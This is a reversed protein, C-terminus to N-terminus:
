IISRNACLGAASEAADVGPFGPRWRLAVPFLLLVAGGCGRAQTGHDMIQSHTRLPKQGFRLPKGAHDAVGAEGDFHRDNMAECDIESGPQDDAIRQGLPHM